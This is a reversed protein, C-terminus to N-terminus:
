KISQPLSHFNYDPYAAKLQQLYQPPRNPVNYNKQPIQIPQSNNAGM